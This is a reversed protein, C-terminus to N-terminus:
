HAYPVVDVRSKTCCFYISILLFFTWHPAGPFHVPRRPTQPHRSGPTRFGACRGALRNPRGPPSSRAQRTQAGPVSLPRLPTARLSPSLHISAMVAPCDITQVGKRARANTSAILLSCPFCITSEKGDFHNQLPLQDLALVHRGPRSNSASNLPPQPSHIPIWKFPCICCDYFSSIVVYPVCWGCFVFKRTCFCFTHTIFLNFACSM